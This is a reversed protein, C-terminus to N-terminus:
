RRAARADAQVEALMALVDDITGPPANRAAVAVALALYLAVREWDDRRIAAALAHPKQPSRASM